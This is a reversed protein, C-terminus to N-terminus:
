CYLEASKQQEESYRHGHAFGAPLIAEIDALDAASLTIDSAAANQALHEATRTGPIPIIHPAQHLVWANALSAPNLGKAKAFAKFREIYVMNRPYNDDSFRPMNRRFEDPFTKPDLVVDGLVGRSLPSFAVFATGLRECAQLLGLEPLRTCLSYENQVARIHHVQSARELSAPSIESYGIGGIKGEKIFGALTETVAEIPITHDRRHIYYLDVHDVGLRRLSGELCERMFHAENSIGRPNIRFGGKTAISFRKRANPNRKLYAGIVDESILPGYILATDIHTVGLDLAKDLARHSEAEDTAGFIGGFSMAGLGVEGVMTGGKGLQRQKMSKEKAM